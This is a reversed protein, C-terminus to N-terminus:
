RRTSPDPLSLTFEGNADSTTEALPVADDVCGPWSEDCFAQLATAPLGYQHEDMVTARWDMSRLLGQTIVFESAQVQGPGVFTRAYGSGVEPVALLVYPRGPSVGFAFSGDPNATMARPAEPSDTSRDYAVITVTAYNPAPAGSASAVLRGFIASQPWLQVTASTGGPGLTVSTTTTAANAGPVAPIMLVEYTANAPLGPFVVVGVSDTTGEMQVDGSAPQNNVSGGLQTLTLNGVPKSQLSTVRVTVGPLANAASDVVTLALTATTPAAWQFALSADGAITIASTSVAEALGMGLPPSFLAWYTGEQVHLIYQGQADSSGVSSFLLDPRQKASAPDQNTLMVRVDSLRQGAASLTTGTVTVGGALPFPGNIGSPDLSQYLQPATAGLTQGDSGDVPVVLVDYRLVAKNNDVALLRAGFGGARPDALGDVVLGGMLDNIRVYASILNSGVSPAVLVRVGHSLVVNDEQVSIPGGQLPIDATAPAAARIIVSSDCPGCVDAAVAYGSVTAHCAGAMASFTYHGPNAIAFAVAAPDSQGVAALSLPSGEWTAQWSWSAGAPMAGSVVEARVVVKTNAGAVLRGLWAATPAVPVIQAACAPLVDSPPAVADAGGPGGTDLVGADPLPPLDPGAVGGDRMPAADVSSVYGGSGAGGRGSSGGAAASTGSSGGSGGSGLLGGTGVMGGASSRGGSGPVGGGSGRGGTGIGGSGAQAGGSGRTGSGTAGGASAGGTAGCGPCSSTDWNFSVADATLNSPVVEHSGDRPLGAADVLFAGADANLGTSGGSGSAGGGAGGGSGGSIGSAGMDSASSCGVALTAVVLLPFAGFCKM